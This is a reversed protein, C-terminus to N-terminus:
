ARAQVFWAAGPIRVDGRADLYEALMERLTAEIAASTADDADAFVTRSRLGGQYHALAGDIGSGVEGILLDIEIAECTVDHFGASELISTVYDTDAFATMGPARPDEPVIPPVDIHQAAARLAVQMWELKSLDQWCVFALKAGENAVSHINTFAAVPDDFFMVGFRSVIVDFPGGPIPDVQADAEIFDISAALIEDAREQARALMPASIDVATVFSAMDSLALSLAGTGCGIELVNSQPLVVGTLMPVFPALMSDFQDQYEVWHPGADNNWNERETDNAM